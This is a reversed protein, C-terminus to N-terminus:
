VEELKLNTRYNKILKELIKKSEVFELTLANSIKNHSYDKGSELKKKNYESAQDFLFKEIKLQTTRNLPENTLIEFLKKFIPSTFNYISTLNSLREGLGSRSKHLSQSRKATTSFSKSKILSSHQLAIVGVPNKNGCGLLPPCDLPSYSRNLFGISKARLGQSVSGSLLTQRSKAQPAQPAQPAQAISLTINHVQSKIPLDAVLTSSKEAGDSEKQKALTTTPTSYLKRAPSFSIKLNSSDFKDSDACIILMIESNM